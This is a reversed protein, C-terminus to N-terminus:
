TAVNIEYPIMQYRKAYTQDFPLNAITRDTHILVSIRRVRQLWRFSRETRQRANKSREKPRPPHVLSPVQPWSRTLPNPHTRLTLPSGPPSSPCRRVRTIDADAEGAGEDGAM